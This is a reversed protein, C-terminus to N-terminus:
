ANDSDDHGTPGKGARLVDVVEAVETLKNVIDAKSKIIDEIKNLLVTQGPFKLKLEEALATLYVALEDFGELVQTLTPTAM